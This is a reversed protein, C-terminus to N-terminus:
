RSDPGSEGESLAAPRDTRLEKTSQSEAAEQEYEMDKKETNRMLVRTYAQFANPLPYKEFIDEVREMPYLGPMERKIMVRFGTMHWEVHSFIHVSEALPEISCINERDIGLAEPIEQERLHGPLNPFEYLSALLGSANRKRIAAKDECEILFVTKEERRREKKGSKVPIESITGNRRALCLTKFPCQVCLPEGAPICVLAGLEILAQNFDGPRERPIIERIEQEMQKKASQKGIDERSELLRSIVRLVNGDVAPEAIQFAISAIAGATYSGIGPLKMLAEYSAPLKGGYEEVCVLAAKKLNRARNYYGLGEWLKLLTEEEAEALARVDPLAEMFRAFYPKVAEVRTQQLMIESIWVRYPEPEERWPLVRRNEHYWLLLPKRVAMLRERRSMPYGEREVTVLRDYLRKVYQNEM